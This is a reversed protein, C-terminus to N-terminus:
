CRLKVRQLRGRGRVELRHVERCVIGTHPTPLNESQPPASDIELRAENSQPSLVGFGIVASDNGHHRLQRGQEPSQIFDSPQILVSHEEQFPLGDPRNSCGERIGAFSGLDLAKPKM